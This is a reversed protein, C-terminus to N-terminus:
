NESRGMGFFKGVPLLDTDDVFHRGAKHDINLFIYVKYFSVATSYKGCMRSPM